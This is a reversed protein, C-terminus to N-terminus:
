SRKGFLRAVFGPKPASAPAKVTAPASVQELSGAVAAAVAEAVVSDADSIARTVGAHIYTKGNFRALDKVDLDTAFICLEAADIAAQPMPTSGASGQTEVTIEHGARKAAQELAEAAMYTHAIGTICSTVAVIKM